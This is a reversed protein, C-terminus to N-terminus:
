DMYPNYAEAITKEGTNQKPFLHNHTPVKDSRGLATAHGDVFLFNARKKHRLEVRAKDNPYHKRILFYQTRGNSTFGNPAATAPPDTTVSDAFIESLAPRAITKLSGSYTFDSPNYAGVRGYTYTSAESLAHFKYPAQAPCIFAAYGNEKIISGRQLLTVWKKTSGDEYPCYPLAGNFAESYLVTYIGLQKLNNICGIAKANNRANNLAPLMIAALIAIIAIVVLLEILTFNLFRRAKYHKDGSFCPYGCKEGNPPM